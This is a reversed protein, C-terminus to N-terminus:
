ESNGWGLETFYIIIKEIYATMEEITLDTTSRVYEVQKDAITKQERLFLHGCLLHMEFPLYGTYEGISKYLRGWLYKNQELSRSAKKKKITVQWVESTDISQIIKIVEQRTQNTIYYQMENPKAQM